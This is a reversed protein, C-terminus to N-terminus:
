AQVKGPSYTWPSHWYSKELVPSPLALANHVIGPSPVSVSLDGAKRSGLLQPSSLLILWKAAASVSMPSGGEKLSLDVWFGNVKLIVYM